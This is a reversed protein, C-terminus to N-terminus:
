QSAPFIFNTRPLMLVAILSGSAPGTLITTLDRRLLNPLAIDLVALPMLTHQIELARPFHGYTPRSADDTKTSNAISGLKSLLGTTCFGPVAALDDATKRNTTSLQARALSPTLQVDFVKLPRLLSFPRSEFACLFNQPRSSQIRRAHINSPRVLRLCYVLTAAVSLCQDLSLRTLQGLSGVVWRGISRVVLRDLSGVVWCGFSWVVLCGFLWVVLSRNLWEGARGGSREVTRGSLWEGPKKSSFHSIRKWLVRAREM